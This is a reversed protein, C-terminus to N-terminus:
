LEMVGFERESISYIAVKVNRRRMVRVCDVCPRAMALEGSGKTVRAVYITSTEDIKKLVRAEAHSAPNPQLSSGNRAAVLTGDKRRALATLRFRQDKTIDQAIKAAQYLYAWTDSRTM